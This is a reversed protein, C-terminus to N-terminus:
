RGVLRMPRIVEYVVVGSPDSFVRRAAPSAALVALERWLLSRPTLRDHLASDLVLYTGPSLVRRSAEVPDWEYRRSALQPEVHNQAVVPAGKPVRAVARTLAAINPPLQQWNTRLQQVLFVVLLLLPLALAALPRPRFPAAKGGLAAAAGTFLSPVALVTLQNFPSTTAASGALVNVAVLLLAPLWLPEVARGRGLVLLPVLPGALWALYEYTRPQGLAHLLQLPHQRLLAFGRAPTPGLTGFYAQWQPLEGHALGPIVLGFDFALGLGAVALAVFGFAYARRLILALGFAAAVFACLDGVAVALLALLLFALRRRALYAWALGFLVPVGLAEVHFDFLNTGLVTPYLLYVVGLLHALQPDVGLCRCSRRLFLYGLGLAFSQLALLFGVGFAQFLPALGLLVYAASQALVPYGLYSSPAVVGGHLLLWLGQVYWGLDYGTVLWLKQRLISFSTLFATYGLVWAWEALPEPLLFPGVGELPALGPEAGASM